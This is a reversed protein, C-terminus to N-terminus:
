GPNQDGGHSLLVPIIIVSHDAWRQSGFLASTALRQTGVEAGRASTPAHGLDRGCGAHWDFGEPLDLRTSHRRGGEERDHRDGVREIDWEVSQSLRARANESGLDTDAWTPDAAVYSM